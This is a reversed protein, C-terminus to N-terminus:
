ILSAFCRVRSRLSVLVPLGYTDVKSYLRASPGYRKGQEQLWIIDSALMRPFLKRKQATLLWQMIFMHTQLGSLVKGEERALGVAVLIYWALHGLDETPREPFTVTM